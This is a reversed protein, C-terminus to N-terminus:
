PASGDFSGGVEGFGARDRWPSVGEQSYAEEEPLAEARARARARSRGTSPGHDVATVHPTARPVACWRCGIFVLVSMARVMSMSPKPVGREIMRAKRDTIWFRCREAPRLVGGM